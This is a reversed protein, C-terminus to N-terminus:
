RDDGNGQLTNRAKRSALKTLNKQAVDNLSVGLESCMQGVYWLLDGLEAEIKERAEDTLVGNSDRLVKKVKGQVEGAEGLGLAAYVLGTITGKGPYIATTGTEAQYKNMTIDETM